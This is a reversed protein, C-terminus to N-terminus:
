TIALKYLGGGRRQVYTSFAARHEPLPAKEQPTHTHLSGYQPVLQLRIMSGLLPPPALLQGHTIM